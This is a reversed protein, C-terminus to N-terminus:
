ILDIVETLAKAVVPDYASGAGEKIEQLAGEKTLAKRYPRESIMSCYTDVVSLVRAISPIEQGRLGDPYGTGDYKEHHHLITKKVEEAFEFNKLLDVATYPHVKVTRIESPSLSEKKLIGDHIPVLGLDYIMSIYLALNKDEEKAGLKDMILMVLDQFIRDKKHYRKEASLLSDFSAILGKFDDDDKYEGSNLRGIFGAIRETLISAINLDQTTFSEGAKKNNLNIVGVIKDQVKIPLSLLSKTNYQPISSSKGFRPDNEIDEVLLPKGEMAVWGAIRDGIRIRTRRIIEDSLGRSSRITLEGTIDDSLMVSCMNLGLLESVFDLFINLANGMVADKKQTTSKAITLAIRFSDETNEAVLKWRYFDAVKWALYFKLREEPRDTQFISKSDFLDSWLLDPLKKPVTLYIMLHEDERATIKISDGQDLHASLGEILNVFLQVVKVKDGVIDSIGEQVDVELHLSNRVLLTKLSTAGAIEEILARLDLVSNKAILTEDELRLFDLLNEVVAILRNTERLIIGYFEKEPDDSNRKSQELYYVSGYISNLPTRLEHSVRTLFETKLADSDILKRNIEELEAAKAKLQRMLFANEFAVAAQNAIIKLLAFEDDSFPKADKKDNINLVGLLRNKSVIPCSIFSRTKYRDRKGKKFREDKEIDEVVVPSRSEAVIGAVGEGIRVRYTNVLQMDLGRAAVIYLERRDNILMLSGKEAGTYNVALDLMLNAIASVNDTIAIAHSIDQLISFKKEFLELNEMSNMNYIM